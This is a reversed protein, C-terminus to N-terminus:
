GDGQRVTAIALATKTTGTRGDQYTFELEVEVSERDGNLAEVLDPYRKILYGRRLKRNRTLEFEDSDFEKHLNVYKAIRQSEPLNRNVAAIEQEILEYVEPKQSLDGFTTYAVKRKDAWRGTNAADVIIVASLRERDEGTVVWADRIYPSYKLRSEIDQPAVSDGCALCIVDSVRDVFVLEGNDDVYGRDGTHVWGDRLVQATLEPDGYYGLFVGPHRVVIEGADTTKLEVGKNVKGVTDPSHRGRSAGTVSGAEASGYTNKLPVKLARFFRLAEPSLTSGSSYCVRARTLGLSARVPRYVLLDGLGSLLWWHPGVRKGADRAEAVKRGVPMFLRSTTRKLLSAGKLKSTVQGALGEWLRSNYLVLSPAIERVDAQQTEADEPFNLTGGSLLHCGFALWQETIWAPPLFSTLDDKSGLGGEVRYREADSMLSRYSHMAGKPGDGTTGSTYVIACVDDAAGAAVNEEFAGPHEAEYARGKQMVDRLGVFRDRDHRSLGKYRWYVITKLQPLRDLVQVVKDAQEEDEVMAFEAGCHDAVYEIEAATLDSYLGVSIGRNCQAALEAFYWEPFDDGVILLKSGPKFGLSLLGLALYKVNTLYDQWSYSQWIGYHKYRMAKKRAGLHTGNHELVKPWTDLVALDLGTTKTKLFAM